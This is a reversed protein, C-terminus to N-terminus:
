EASPTSCFEKAKDIHVNAIYDSFNVGTEKKFLESIYKPNLYVIESLDNLSINEGFHEDIYNKLVDIASVTKNKQADSISRSTNLIDTLYNKLQGISNFEEIKQQAIIQPPMDAISIRSNTLASYVSNIFELAFRFLICPNDALKNKDFKEFTIAIIEEASYECTHNLYRLILNKYGVPLLESIDKSPSQNDICIIRDTGLIMRARVADQACHFSSSIESFNNVANGVGFTINYRMIEPINNKCKYFVEEVLAKIKSKSSSHYNIMCVVSLNIRIACMDFCHPKLISYWQEIIKKFIASDGSSLSGSKEDLM